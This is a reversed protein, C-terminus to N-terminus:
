AQVYEEAYKKAADIADLCRAQVAWITNPALLGESELKSALDILQRQLAGSFSAYYLPASSPAPAPATNAMRSLYAKVRGGALKKEHMEVFSNKRMEQKARSM